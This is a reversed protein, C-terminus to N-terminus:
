WQMFVFIHEYYACGKYDSKVLNILPETLDVMKSM